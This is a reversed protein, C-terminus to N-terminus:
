VNGVAIQLLEVLCVDRTISAIKYAEVFILIRAHALPAQFFLGGSITALFSMLENITKGIRTTVYNIFLDYISDGKLRCTLLYYSLIRDGRCKECLLLAQVVIGFNLFHFIL